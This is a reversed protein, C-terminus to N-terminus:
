LPISFLEKMTRTREGMESNSDKNVTVCGVKYLEIAINSKCVMKQRHLTPNLLNGIYKNIYM